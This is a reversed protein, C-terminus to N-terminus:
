HSSQSDFFVKKNEAYPGQKIELISSEELFTISHGGKMTLVSDGTNLIVSDFKKGEDTFFDMKLQGFRVLIFEQMSTLQFPECVHKHPEVIYGKKRSFMGMQFENEDETFFDVSNSQYGARLIVVYVQDAYKLYEIQM